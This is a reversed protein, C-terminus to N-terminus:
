EQYELIECITGIVSIINGNEDRLTAEVEEDVECHEYLYAVTGGGTNLLVTYQMTQGKLNSNINGQYIANYMGYIRRIDNTKGKRKQNVIVM